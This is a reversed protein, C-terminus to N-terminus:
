AVGDEVGELWGGIDLAKRTVEISFTLDAHCV